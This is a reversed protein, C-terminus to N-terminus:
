VYNICTVYIYIKPNENDTQAIFGDVQSSICLIRKKPFIYKFFKTPHCQHLKHFFCMLGRKIVVIKDDFHLQDDFYLQEDFYLQDDSYM